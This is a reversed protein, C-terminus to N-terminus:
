GRLHNSTRLCLSEEPRQTIWIPGFVSQRPVQIAFLIKEEIFRGAQNRPHGISANAAIKVTSIHSNNRGWAGATV